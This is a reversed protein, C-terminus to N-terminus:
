RTFYFVKLFDEAHFIKTLFRLPSFEERWNNPTSILAFSFLSIVTSSKKENMYHQIYGYNM